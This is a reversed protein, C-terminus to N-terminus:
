RDVLTAAVWSLANARRHTGVSVVVVGGLDRDYALLHWAVVL